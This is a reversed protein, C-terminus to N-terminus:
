SRVTLVPVLSSRVVREATSGVLVKELGTRGHTGMVILDAQIRQSEELITEYGSGVEVQHTIELSQAQSGSFHLKIFHEMDENAQRTVERIFTDIVDSPVRKRRKDSLETIVHLLHLTAGSMTALTRAHEVAKQAGESFDTAFLITKYQAM